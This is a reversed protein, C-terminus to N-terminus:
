PAVRLVLRDAEWQQFLRLVHGARERHDALIEAGSRAQKALPLLLEVVQYRSSAIMKGPIRAIPWFIDMKQTVIQAPDVKGLLDSFPIKQDWYRVKGYQLFLPNLQWRSSQFFEPTFPDWHALKKGQHCCWFLNQTHYLPELYEIVRLQDIRALAEYRRHFEPHTAAILPRANWYDLYPAVDIFELGAQAVLDPIEGIDFPIDNAHFFNDVINEDHLYYDQHAKAHQALMSTPHAAKLLQRVFEIKEPTAPPTIGLLELARRIRYLHWRGSRNYLMLAMVGDPALRSALNQLAKVPDATHHIVGYSSIMDFSGEPWTSPDMLDGYHVSCNRLGHYKIRKQAIELAPRSLDIGVVAGYGPNSAAIGHVEWGTGCGAVLFRAGTPEQLTRTRAYQALTYSGLSSFGEFPQDYPVPPYPFAEYQAQVAQTIEAESALPM